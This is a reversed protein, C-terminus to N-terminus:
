QNWVGADQLIQIQQRKLEATATQINSIFLQRIGAADLGQELGANVSGYLEGEAAMDMITTYVPNLEAAQRKWLSKTAYAGFYPDPTEYIATDNWASELAPFYDVAQFIDNQGQATTLMYKIFAWAEEKHTSQKPIALFSGGWNSGHVNGPLNAVRWHGSGNPDIDTKLFGGFWAGSIVSAVAGSVYGAYAETSWMDTNMDWKNKRMEIIANLCDLDGEREVRLSLNKDFYDRTSFLEYFLYSVNPLLWRQGPIFVKQAVELVGSWTSMLQAVEDPDTPLGVSEFVDSRYFYSCPGIDWPIAVLRKQDSSYGQEWKFAVFDDTFEGANYPTGLLDELAPSDRYQAIYGGEVMVVDQAGQGAALSSQLLQMFTDSGNNFEFEIEINPYAAKFGALAAKFGEDGSPWGGVTITVPRISDTGASGANEKSCGASLLFILVAMGLFFKKM